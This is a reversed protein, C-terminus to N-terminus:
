FSWHDAPWYEQIVSSSTGSTPSKPAKTPPKAMSLLEPVRSKSGVSNILLRVQDSPVESEEITQVYLKDVPVSGAKVKPSLAIVVELLNPMPVVVGVVLSSTWPVAEAEYRM